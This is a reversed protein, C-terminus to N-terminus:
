CFSPFQAQSALKGVNGITGGVANIPINDLLFFRKSSITGVGDTLNKSRDSNGSLAILSPICM